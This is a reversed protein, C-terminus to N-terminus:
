MQNNTIVAKLVENQSQCMVRYFSTCLWYGVENLSVQQVTTLAELYGNHSWLIVHIHNDIIVFIFWKVHQEYFYGTLGRVYGYSDSELHWLCVYLNFFLLPCSMKFVSNNNVRFYVISQIASFLLYSPLWFGQKRHGRLTLKYVFLFINFFWM